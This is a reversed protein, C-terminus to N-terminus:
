KYGRQRDVSDWFRSTGKKYPYFAQKLPNWKWYDYGKPLPHIRSDPRSIGSFMPVIRNRVWWELVSPDTIDADDRMQGQSNSMQPTLGGDDNRQFIISSTPAALRAPNSPDGRIAEQNVMNVPVNGQGNLPNGNDRSGGNPMPPNRSQGAIASNLQVKLIDNQLSMNETQLQAQKLSLNTAAAREDRTRTRDIANGISQGMSGLANGFGSDGVAIPNFSVTNAGLAYLPHIGARQADEVKWRVGNQAFERQMDVNMSATNSASRSDIFSGGIQGVAGLVDGTLAKGVSKFINKLMNKSKAFLKQIKLLAHGNKALKVLRELLM